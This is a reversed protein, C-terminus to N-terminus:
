YGGRDVPSLSNTKEEWKSKNEIMILPRSYLVLVKQGLVCAELKSTNGLVFTIKVRSPKYDTGIYTWIQFFIAPHYM